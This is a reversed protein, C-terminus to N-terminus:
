FNRIGQDRTVPYNKNCQMLRTGPDFPLPLSRTAEVSADRGLDHVAGCTSSTAPSRGPASSTPPSCSAEVSSACRLVHRSGLGAWSTAPLRGPASSPPRRAAVVPAALM